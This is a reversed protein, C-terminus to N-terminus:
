LPHNPTQPLSLLFEPQLKILHPLNEPESAKELSCISKPQKLIRAQKAAQGECQKAGDPSLPSGNYMAIAISLLEPPLMNCCSSVEKSISKWLGASLQPKSPM